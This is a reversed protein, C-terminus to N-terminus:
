AQKANEKNKLTNKSTTSKGKPAKGSDVLKSYKDTKETMDEM